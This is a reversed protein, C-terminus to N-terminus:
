RLLLQLLHPERQVRVTRTQFELEAGEQSRTTLCTVKIKKGRFQKMQLIPISPKRGPTTAPVLHTSAALPGTLKLKHNVNTVMLVMIIGHNNQEQNIPFCTDLAYRRSMKELERSSLGKGGAELYPGDRKLSPLGVKGWIGKGTSLM